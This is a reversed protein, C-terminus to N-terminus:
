KGGAFLQYIALINLIVSSSLGIFLLTNKVGRTNQLKTIDITNATTRNNLDSMTLDFVDRRVHDLSNTAILNKLEAVQLSVNKVEVQLGENTISTM